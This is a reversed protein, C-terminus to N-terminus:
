TAMVLALRYKYRLPWISLSLFLLRDGLLNKESIPSSQRSTSELLMLRLNLRDTYDSALIVPLRANTQHSEQM